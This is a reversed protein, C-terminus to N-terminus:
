DSTSNKRFGFNKPEPKLNCPKKYKQCKKVSSQYKEGIKAKKDLKLVLQKDIHVMKYRIKSM